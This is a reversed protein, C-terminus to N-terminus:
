KRKENAIGVIFLTIVGITGIAFLGCLITCLTEVM